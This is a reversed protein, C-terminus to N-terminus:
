VVNGILCLKYITVRGYFDTSTPFNIRIFKAKRADAESEPPINWTQLDNSDEIRKVEDLNVTRRPEGVKSDLFDITGEQGVFGGQFMISVSDLQVIKGLFDFLLWQGQNEGSVGDSNWCSDDDVFMNKAQFDSSKNLVSSARVKFFTGDATLEM